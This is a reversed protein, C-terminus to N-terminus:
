HHHLIVAAGLPNSPKNLSVDLLQVKSTCGGPIVMPVTNIKLKQKIAVTIYALFSDLILLARHGTAPEWVLDIQELTMTKHM